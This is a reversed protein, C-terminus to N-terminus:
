VADGTGDWGRHDCVKQVRFWVEETMQFQWVGGLLHAFKQNIKAQAEVREIFETGHYSLLYELPGAALVGLHPECLPTTLALLIFKWAREPYERSDDVPEM